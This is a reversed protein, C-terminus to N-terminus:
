CLRCYPRGADGPVDAEREGGACRARAIEGDGACGAVSIAGSVMLLENSAKAISLYGVLRSSLSCNSRNFPPLTVAVIFISSSKIRSDPFM